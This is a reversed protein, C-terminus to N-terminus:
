AACNLSGLFDPLCGPTPSHRCPASPGVQVRLLEGVAAATPLGTISLELRPMGKLVHFLLRRSPPYHKQQSPRCYAVGPLLKKHEPEQAATCSEAGIQTPQSASVLLVLRGRAQEAAHMCTHESLGVKCLGARMCSSVAQSGSQRASQSSVSQSASQSASQQSVSQSVQSASVYISCMLEQLTLSHRM